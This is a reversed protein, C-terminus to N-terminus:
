YNLFNIIFFGGTRPGDWLEAHPDKGRLFIVGDHEGQNCTLVLCSDPELCGTLYLFDSDQRFVYPIKETMYKKCSAPVIVVHSDHEPSSNVIKQLLKTRRQEFEDFCIGSM